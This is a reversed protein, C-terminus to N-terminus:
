GTNRMRPAVANMAADLFEGTQRMQRVLARLRPDEDRNM